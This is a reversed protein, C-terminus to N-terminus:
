RNLAGEPSQILVSPIHVSAAVGKSPRNRQKQRSNLKPETRFGVAPRPFEIVGPKGCIIELGSVGRHVLGQREFNLATPRSRSAAGAGAVTVPLSLAALELRIPNRRADPHSKANVSIPGIQAPRNVVFAFNPSALQWPERSIMHQPRTANPTKPINESRVSGSTPNGGDVGSPAIKPHRSISNSFSCGPRTSAQRARAASSACRISTTRRRPGFVSASTLFFRPCAWAYKAMAETTALCTPGDTLFHFNQGGRYTM